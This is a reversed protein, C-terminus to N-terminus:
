AVHQAVRIGLNSCRIDFDSVFKFILHGLSRFMVKRIKINNGFVGMGLCISPLKLATLGPILDPGSLSADGSYGAHSHVIPLPM